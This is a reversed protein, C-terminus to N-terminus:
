KTASTELLECLTNAHGCVRSRPSSWSFHQWHLHCCRCGPRTRCVVTRAAATALHMAQTPQLHRTFSLWKISTVTLVM